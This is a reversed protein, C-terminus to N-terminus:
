SYDADGFDATGPTNIKFGGTLLGSRFHLKGAVTVDPCSLAALGANLELIGNPQVSLSQSVTLQNLLRLTAHVGLKDGMNLQAISKPSTLEVEANKGENDDITVVDSPSDGPGAASTAPQWNNPTTWQNDIIGRWTYSTAQAPAALSALLFARM